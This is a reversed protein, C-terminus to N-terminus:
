TVRSGRPTAPQIAGQFAGSDSAEIRTAVDAGVSTCRKVAAVTSTWWDEPNQEAWGPKPYSVPHEVTADAILTGKMDTVVAKTGTTGIDIGLFLPGAHSMAALTDRTRWKGPAAFGAAAAQSACGM